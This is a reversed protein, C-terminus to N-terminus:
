LSLGVVAKDVCQKLAAVMQGNFLFPQGNISLVAANPTVAGTITEVQEGDILTDELEAEPDPRLDAAEADADGDRVHVPFITTGTDGAYVEVDVPQEAAPADDEPADPETTATDDTVTDEKPCISELQNILTTRPTDSAQEADLAEQARGPDDGVWDLVEQVTGTPVTM